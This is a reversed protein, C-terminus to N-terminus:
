LVFSDEDYTQKVDLNEKTKQALGEKHTFYIKKSSTISQKEEEIKQESKEISFDFPAYLNEYQWPKGNHFEYKFHGGKPFLYVIASTTIIFLVIKYALAHNQYLTNLFHKFNFKKM